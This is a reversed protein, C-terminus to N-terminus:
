GIEALLGSYFSAVIEYRQAALLRGTATIFGEALNLLKAPFHDLAFAGEDLVRREGRPDSSEYIASGM